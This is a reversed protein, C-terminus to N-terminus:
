SGCPIMVEIRTGGGPPATLAFTGGVAAVRDVLGRLGSGHIDAGGVGDDVVELLLQDDALSARVQASGAQAHKAVNALAEAAVFYAATEVHSPLREPLELEVAVPISSRDALSRIAAGLGAERLIAPDLGQALERLEAIAARVENAAADLEAAVGESVDHGMRARITLLSMGLALLRQQAGDHLDRELRRREADTAEVIRMRSARVEDLQMRLDDQLRANDVALGVVAGVTRIVEQDDLLSEDHVVAGTTRGATELIMVARPGGPVPISAPRGEADAWSGDAAYLVRLTPDALARQLARELDAGQPPAPGATLIAVAADSGARLRSMGLLLGLPGLIRPVYEIFREGGSEPLLRIGTQLDVLGAVAYVGALAAWLVGGILVPDTMRTAGPRRDVLLRRLAALAVLWLTTGVIASLVSDVTILLGVDHFLLFPSVPADPGYGPGVGPPVAILRWATRVLMAVGLAAVVVAESRRRLRDGPVALVVFALIVDYYGRFAFGLYPVLSTEAVLEYLSGVYWLYGALVLLPGTHWRPRREWAILGSLVLVVGTAADAIHDLPADRLSHGNATVLMAIAVGVVPVLLLLRGTAGRRM